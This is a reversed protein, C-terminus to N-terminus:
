DMKEPMENMRYLGASLGGYLWLLTHNTNTAIWDVLLHLSVAIFAGFIAISVSAIYLDDSRAAKLTMACSLSLFGFFFVLGPIGTETAILLYYNHTPLQMFYTNPDYESVAILNNNLGVGIIPHDKIINVAVKM